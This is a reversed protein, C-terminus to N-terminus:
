TNEQANRPRTKQQLSRFHNAAPTAPRNATDVQHTTQKTTTVNKIFRACAQLTIVRLNIAYAHSRSIQVNRLYLFSLILTTNFTLFSRLTSHRGWGGRGRGMYELRRGRRVQALGVELERTPQPRRSTHARLREWTRTIEVLSEIRTPAQM